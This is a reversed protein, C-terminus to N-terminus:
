EEPMQEAPVDEISANKVLFGVTKEITVQHAVDDLGNNKRLEKILKDLPMQYNTSMSHLRQLLEQEDARINEKDAIKGLVFMAKVRDKATLSASAFIEDKQKEILEMPVGRNKNENVINYVISKTEQRVVSEPLDFQVKEMLNKVVQERMVRDQKYRMENELDKHVGERLKDVNEAGFGKALEDNLEPVVKEKVEVLEVEYQGKKGQLEPTVFDAPFDVNVTRKEGAKAGLLQPAFGPIFSTPTVEVWFNKKETMGRAAPALDTIPKGECTGTYNVVAFDNERLEREVNNYTQQRERLMTLARNVDAETVNGVPRKIALGKYEPVEFEPQTEVTVAFQYGQDKAFQIEEIDPKGVLSITHKRLSDQLGERTLREKVQSEIDPGYRKVIMDKPAKGARFGPFSAQRQFDKTVSDYIEGVKEPGIEIRLLKKCPGLNEVTVNVIFGKL